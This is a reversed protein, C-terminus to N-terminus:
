ELTAVFNDLDGFGNEDCKFVGTDEIVQKFVLGVEDQLIADINGDNICDYKSVIEGAWSSHKSILENTSPDKGDILYCKLVELEAKLRAPLIALGMIEILGINEKKIHHFERRPHFVGQPRETTTINNRLAIDLVFLSGDKWLIPTIANHREGNSSAFIGARECTYVAWKDMIHAGLEIMAKRNEGILRLTTVPWNLAGLSIDTYGKISYHRRTEARMMPFIAHGGQFHNHNLISGGVIPLDANSGLFYHPFMDVFDFMQIFTEKTTEMSRHEKEIVICHENYYVYPSYQFFWEEKNLTLPIIRHNQRASQNLSGHYGENEICLACRPYTKEPTNKAAAIDKPDKEPKSLNISIELEGYETRVTWKLDKKIRYTRIYDTAMSFNYYSETACQPSINYEEWFKRIVESTRPTLLGMLKTDFLDCQTVSNEIIEKSVAYELLKSLIEELEAEPISDPTCYDAMSLAEMIGNRIFVRDTKEFLGREVGYKLLCEVYQEIM